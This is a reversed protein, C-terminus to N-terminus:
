AEERERRGITKIKERGRNGKRRSTKSYCARRGEGKRKEKPRRRGEKERTRGPEESDRNKKKTM